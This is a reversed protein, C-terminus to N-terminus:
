KLLKITPEQLLTGSDVDIVPHCFRAWASVTNTVQNRGIVRALTTDITSVITVQADTGHYAGNCERRADNNEAVKVIVDNTVENDDYGNIAASDTAVDEAIVAYAALDAGAPARALALAVALAASDAANQAHRKDSFVRGGDIALAAFAILGIAAFAVLVIAQGKESLNKMM